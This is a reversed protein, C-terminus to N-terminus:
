ERGVLVVLVVADHHQRILVGVIFITRTERKGEFPVVAVLSRLSDMAISVFLAPSLTNM